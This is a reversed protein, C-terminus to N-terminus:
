THVFGRQPSLVPSQTGVDVAVSLLALHEGLEIPLLVADGSVDLGGILVLLIDTVAKFTGLGGRPEVVEAGEGAAGRAGGKPCVAIVVVIAPAAREGDGLTLRLM